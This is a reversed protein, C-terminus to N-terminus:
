IERMILAPQGQADTHRSWWTAMASWITEAQSGTVFICPINFGGRPYYKSSNEETMYLINIEFKIDSTTYDQSLNYETASYLDNDCTQLIVDFQNNNRDFLPFTRSNVDTPFTRIDLAYRANDSLNSQSSLYVQGFFPCPGLLYVGAIANVGEMSRFAPLQMKVDPNDGVKTDKFIIHNTNMDYRSWFTGTKLDGSTYLGGDGGLGEGIKRAIEEISRRSWERAM